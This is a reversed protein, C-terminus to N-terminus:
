DDNRKRGKASRVAGAIVSLCDTRTTVTHTLSINDGHVRRLYLCNPLRCSHIGETARLRFLWDTDEGYAYKTAFKGVQRVMEMRMCATPLIYPFKADLLRIERITMDERSQESFNEVETFVASCEPHADLYAVQLELKEPLWLDDADLFAAFEGRAEDLLRNRAAAIGANEQYIYRVQPYAAVVQATDDTSGDDLVIVEYDTYTQAFVSELAASLFRGYNYTPILVSVRPSM